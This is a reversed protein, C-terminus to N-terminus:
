GRGAPGATRTSVGFVDREVTVGFMVALRHCLRRGETYLTRTASQGDDAWVVGGNDVSKLGARGAATVTGLSTEITALSTLVSEVLTQGAASLDTMATELRNPDGGRSVDSMGLYYRIQARQTTSLAM